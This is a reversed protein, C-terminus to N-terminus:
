VDLYRRLLGKSGLPIQIYLVMHQICCFRFPYNKQKINTKSISFFIARQDFRMVFLAPPKPINSDDRLDLFRCDFTWNSLTRTRLNKTKKQYTQRTSHFRTASIISLFTWWNMLSNKKLIRIAIRMHDISNSKSSILVRHSQHASQKSDKCTCHICTYMGLLATESVSGLKLSAIMAFCHSPFDCKPLAEFTFGKDKTKQRQKKSNTFHSNIHTSLNQSGDRSMFRTEWIWLSNTSRPGSSPVRRKASCSNSTWVVLRKVCPKPNSCTTCYTM